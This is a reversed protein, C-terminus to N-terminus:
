EKKWADPDEITVVEPDECSVLLRLKKGKRISGRKLFKPRSESTEYRKGDIFYVYKVSSRRSSHITGIVEGSVVTACDALAKRDNYGLWYGYGLLLFLFITSLCSEIIRGRM